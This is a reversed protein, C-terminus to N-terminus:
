QLMAAGVVGADSKLSSIRVPIEAKVRDTLPKLLEDGANTIGGSLVIMDPDFVNILSNIGVALYDLYEDFVRQAATCGQRLAEFFLKGDLGGNQTYLRYLVSGEDELAAEQASKVLASVSAYQEWCGLRGCRCKRGNTEICIHGIEGASGKGQYIKSDAIIGGGIGTGLTVMVLNKVSKGVGCLAEGLAACNADNCVSVPLSLEDTLMSELNTGDFPLNAASVCGDRIIGPTGVGIGTIRYDAIIERCKDVISNVLGEECSHDTPISDKYVLKNSEDIVGFKIETGGLDIGIRESSYADKDCILVVDSHLKLMSAPIDTNIGGNLLESVVRHKNAGSALLIIKKARLITGIGMTIAKKPVEDASAFFRSNANITSPTLETLHTQSNLSASPENFGIHGNQGIGLIQLDIGGSQKILEEYQRCEGEPDSATGNPVHTNKMDINVKSFLNENMFYRYSQENSAKIPYYEDLNFSKVESFDIEGASNMESLIRYMGVPTSGTALGLVSDPKLIIQSATIKAAAKSM